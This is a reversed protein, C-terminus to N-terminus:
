PRRTGSTDTGLIDPGPTDTELVDTGLTDTDLVDTDLIDAAAHARPPRQGHTM